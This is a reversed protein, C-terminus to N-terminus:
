LICRVADLAERHSIAEEVSEEANQLSCLRVSPSVSTPKNSAAEEVSRWTYSGPSMRSLESAESALDTQNSCTNGEFVVKCLIEKRGLWVFGDISSNTVEVEARQASGGIFVAGHQNGYLHCFQITLSSSDDVGTAIFNNRMTCNLVTVESSGVHSLVGVNGNNEVVCEELSCTTDAMAVLGDSSWSAPDEGSIGGIKCRDLAVEAAKVCMLAIGGQCLINCGHFQWQANIVHLNSQAPGSSSRYFEVSSFEGSSGNGLLIPGRRKELPRLSAEGVGVAFTRFAGPCEQGFNEQNQLNAPRPPKFGSASRFGTAGAPLRGPLSMSALGFGGPSPNEHAAGFGPSHRKGHPSEISDERLSSFLNSFDIRPTQPDQLRNQDGGYHRPRFPTGSLTTAHRPSLLPTQETRPWDHRSDEELRRNRMADETMNMMVGHPSRALFTGTSANRLIVSGDQQAVRQVITPPSVGVRSFPSGNLSGSQAGGQTREDAGGVNGDDWKFFKRCTPQSSTCTFFQRGKNPGAKNVTRKVALNGCATCKVQQSEEKVNGGRIRLPKFRVRSLVHLTVRITGARPNPARFTSVSSWTNDNLCLFVLFWVYPSWRQM